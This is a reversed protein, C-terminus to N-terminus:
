SAFARAAPRAGTNRVKARLKSAAVGRRAWALLAVIERYGFRQALSLPRHGGHGRLDTRAGAAVLMRAADLHGHWVADHLATYGNWPGQEDVIRGFDPHRALAALVEAHGNYAAKHAAHARMYTDTRTLSAGAALLVEVVRVWGDRAAVLLPTHGDSGSGTNPAMENADDDAALLAEAERAMTADDLDTRALLAHLRNADLRRRLAEGHRAFLMRM